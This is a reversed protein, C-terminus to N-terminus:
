RPNAPNFFQWVAGSDSSSVRLSQWTEPLALMICPSTMVQAAISGQQPLQEHFTVSVMSDRMESQELVVQYGPTPRPGLAIVVQSGDEKLTVGADMGCHLQNEAHDGLDVVSGAVSACATLVLATSITLLQSAQVLWSNEMHRAM